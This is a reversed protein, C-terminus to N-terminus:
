YGYHMPNALITDTTEAAQETTLEVKLLISLMAECNRERAARNFTELLEAEVLRENVTMGAFQGRPKEFM